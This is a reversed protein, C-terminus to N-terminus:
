RLCMEGSVVANDVICAINSISILLLHNNQISRVRCTGEKKYIWEVIYEDPLAGSFEHLIKDGLKIM